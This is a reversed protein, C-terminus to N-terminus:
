LIASVFFNQETKRTSRVATGKKKQEQFPAFLEGKSQFGNVEVVM